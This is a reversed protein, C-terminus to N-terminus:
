FPLEDETHDNDSGSWPIPPEHASAYGGDLVNLGVAEIGKLAKKDIPGLPIIIWQTNKDMGRRSIKVSTTELDFNESLEAMQNYVTLGFEWVKAVLRKDESTVFNIKFRSSAGPTPEGFVQKTGGRPWSQWFEHVEGRFVGTVSKGDGVKLYNSTGNGEGKPVERKTFKM